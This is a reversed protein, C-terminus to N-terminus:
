CWKDGVLFNMNRHVGFVHVLLGTGLPTLPSEKLGDGPVLHGQLM